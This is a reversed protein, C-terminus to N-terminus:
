SFELNHLKGHNAVLFTSIAMSLPSSADGINDYLQMDLGVQINIGARWCLDFNFKSSKQFFDLKQTVM